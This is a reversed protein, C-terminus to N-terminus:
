EFDIYEKPNVYEGNKKIEFHLHPEDCVESIMSDGVHGIVEGKSVKEGESYLLDSELSAYICEYTGTSIIVTFGLLTHFGSFKVVGGESAVVATGSPSSIDIGSHIRWDDMTSNYVLNDISFDKTVIGNVPKDFEPPEDKEANNDSNFEPNEVQPKEANHVKTSSKVSIQSREPQVERVENESKNRIVSNVTAEEKKDSLTIAAATIVCLSFIGIILVADIFKRFSAKNKIEYKGM